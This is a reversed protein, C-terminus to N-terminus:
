DRMKKEILHESFSAINKKVFVKSGTLLGGIQDLRIDDGDKSLERKETNADIIFGDDDLTDNVEHLVQKFQESSVIFNLQNNKNVIDKWSVEEYELDNNM